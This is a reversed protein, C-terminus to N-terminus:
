RKLHDCTVKWDGHHDKNLVSVVDGVVGFGLGAFNMQVQSRPVPVKKDNSQFHNEKTFM